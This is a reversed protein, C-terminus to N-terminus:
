LVYTSQSIIGTVTHYLYLPFPAASVSSKCLFCVLKSGPQWPLWRVSMGCSSHCYAASYAVGVGRGLQSITSRHKEHNTVQEREALRRDEERRIDDLRRHPGKEQQRVM